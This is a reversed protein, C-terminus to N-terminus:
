RGTYKHYKLYDAYLGKLLTKGTNDLGVMMMEREWDSCLNLLSYLGPVLANRLSQQSISAAVSSQITFYEMLIYPAHKGFAKSADTTIAFSNGGSSEQNGSSGTTHSVGKSGLATLLRAFNEACEVPLPDGVVSAATAGSEPLAGASLLMFPSKILSEVGQQKKAISAHLSKFGHFMGQLIATFVPILTTLEEQRFRAINILVHYLATFIKATDQNTLGNFSAESGFPISTLPSLLPTAPSMLSTIGELVLGIEWSRLEFSTESCIGAMMDLVSVVVPVSQSTQIIQILRTLLKSIQRRVKRKQTHHAGLFTIDLYRVLTLEDMPEEEIDHVGEKLLWQLLMEFHEDSLQGLLSQYSSKLMAMDKEQLKQASVSVLVVLLEQLYKEAAKDSSGWAKSSPLYECSYGTLIAALHSVDHPENDMSSVLAKALKFLDPVLDLCNDKTEGKLQRYQVLTKFIEFHDMCKQAEEVHGVSPSSGFGAIVKKIRESTRTQVTDLLKGFTKWMENLKSDETSSEHGHKSKSRKSKQHQHFELYQTFSQCIRSIIVVKIRPESIRHNTVNSTKLADSAWGLATGLLTDIHAFAGESQKQDSIQALYYKCSGEVISCTTHLISSGISDQDKGGYESSCNWAAYNLLTSLLAPDQSLVGADNRWTMIANSIRRELLLCRTGIQDASLYRQIYYDLVAMTSLIINREFKEFYELPLLHMISLLSLLKPGQENASSSTKSKSKTKPRTSQQQIVEVLMLLADSFTSKPTSLASSDKSSPEVDTFSSITSALQREAESESLASISTALGHLIRQAFIPRFNPVEYFNASRLLIQNLKHITISDRTSNDALINFQRAIVEAVLEMHQKTGFRCVIDLWDNVQIQWSAVLFASGTAHELQGDWPATLLAEDDLLRKLRSTMTFRVLEKCTESLNDDFMEASCLTLHAHQLVVRNMTLVAADSWNAKDKFTKIMHKMVFEMSMGSKWYQTSAKCLTYHLQLAPTLRRSQYSESNDLNEFIYRLFHNYLVQFEKNLQKEQNATIRLGKLFQIFIAIIPEASRVTLGAEKEKSKGSNLKRKKKHGADELSELGDIEMGSDLTMLETVFIDLIIPAQPLPLYSRINSPIMDLFARSFLPSQNLQEPQTSYERLATLLSTLFIKLDSSKGYIELLTKALELSAEMAEPSPKLLIPWLSDLHPKLLRDDLQSLTMIGALSTSQLRGSSLDQATSLCTNIINFSTSMFVYQDEEENNSPQYMNLDLVSSLLGNLGNMILVLQDLSEESLEDKGIRPLQKKALVYLIKFFAFETDRASDMGREFGSSALSRQKRRSEEVFCKLLMPMVDLAEAAHDSKIMTAIQDFLQKHYSQISKEDKGATYGATYEQLHEQHFLGTRMIAGIADQCLEQSVGPIRRISVRARVMVEFMKGALLSFVKKQNPQIIVLRKFRDLVIQALKMIVDQKDTTIKSTQSTIEILAELTAQALPTYQELTPQFWESMLPGSLMEFCSTVTELVQLSPSEVPIDSSSAPTPTKDATAGQKSKKGQKPATAKPESTPTSQPSLKQVVATFMPIVPVRLLVGPGQSDSIGIKIDQQLPQVFGHKKHRRRSYTIGNFMEKLLDWYELDLIVNPSADKPNKSPTSSKVLASCLWELLFEQKHPLIVDARDWAERALRIKESASTQFGKLAKAFAESSNLNDEM